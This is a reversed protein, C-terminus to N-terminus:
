LHRASEGYNGSEFVVHSEVLPTIRLRRRAPCLIEAALDGRDRIEKIRQTGRFGVARREIHFAYKQEHLFAHANFQMRPQGFIKKM